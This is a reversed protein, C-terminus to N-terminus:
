YLARFAPAFHRVLDNATMTEPTLAAAARDGALGHLFVGLMAADATPYGQALLGTLLGTLVDGSGGKAMGANGTTNFFRRGDPLLICSHHGKLVIVIGRERAERAATEIREFDDAHDGFVRDFEKPHPTLIAHAPLGGLHPQLLNLGDADVVLPGKYRRLVYSFLQKTDEATGMGPGIGVASFKEIGPPLASLHRSEGESTVMAEPASLQMIEYGCPPIGATVLGAGSRLCARVALVMAGMKGYSGGLLLAHGFHGKHGYAIRRRFLKRAVSLSLLASPSEVTQLFGPHLGIDLIFVTGTFQGMDGVLMATKMVQFTLTYRARVIENGRSSRDAYMGSPLDISVVTAASANIQRICAAALEEAPKQLGTGFLADVIIGHAPFLPLNAASQIYQIDAHTEHLRQLNAQFAESGKKGFELIYVTVAYGQQRLLRAVVLGDGGNNGKGCCIFFPRDKWPQQQLWQACQSGAREMLDIYSVPEHLVTYADWAKLQEAHLLPM